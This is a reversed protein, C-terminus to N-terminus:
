SGLHHFSFALEKLSDESVCVCLAAGVHVCLLLYDWVFAELGGGDCFVLLSTNWVYLLLKLALNQIQEKRLFAPTPLTTYFWETLQVCSHPERVNYLFTGM